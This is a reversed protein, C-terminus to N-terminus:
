LPKNRNFFEIVNEVTFFGRILDRERRVLFINESFSIRYLLGNKLFTLGDPKLDFDTLGDVTALGKQIALLDHEIKSFEVM